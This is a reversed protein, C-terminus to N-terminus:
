LFCVQARLHPKAMHFGMAEYGEVLAIGLPNPHFYKGEKQLSIACKFFHPGSLSM